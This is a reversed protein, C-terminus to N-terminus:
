VLHLYTLQKKAMIQFTQLQSKEVKGLFHGSRLGTPQAEAASLTKILTIVLQTMTLLTMEQLM